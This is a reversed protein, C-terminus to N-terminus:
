CHDVVLRGGDRHVKKIQHNTESQEKTKQKQFNLKIVAGGAGNHM